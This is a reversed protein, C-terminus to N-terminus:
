SSLGNINNVSMGLSVQQLYFVHNVVYRRACVIGTVIDNTENLQVYDLVSTGNHVIQKQRLLADDGAVCIRKARRYVMGEPCCKSVCRESRCMNLERIHVSSVNQQDNRVECIVFCQYFLIVLIKLLMAFIKILTLRNRDPSQRM